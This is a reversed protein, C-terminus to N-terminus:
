GNINLEIDLKILMHYNMFPIVWAQLYIFWTEVFLLETIYLKDLQVTISDLVLFPPRYCECVNVM